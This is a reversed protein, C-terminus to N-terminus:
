QTSEGSSLASLGAAVDALKFELTPAYSAQEDLLLDVAAEYEAAAVDTAGLSRYIDGRAEAYLAAFSEDAGSLMALAEQESGMAAKAIALRYVILQRGAEDEEADLAWELRSVAEAYDDRDAAARAAALAGLIAYGNNPYEDQLQDSLAGINRVRELDLSSVSGQSQSSAVVADQLQVYLDGAAIAEQEKKSQWGQYGFYGLAVVLVGVLLQTGNESWWNKIAAIQEEETRDNM